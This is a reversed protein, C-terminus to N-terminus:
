YTFITFLVRCTLVLFHGCVLESLCLKHLGPWDAITLNFPFVAYSVTRAMNSVPDCLVNIVLFRFSFSSNFDVRFSFMFRVVNPEELLTM